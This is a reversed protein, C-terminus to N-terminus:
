KSFRYGQLRLRAKAEASPIGERAAIDRLRWAREVADRNQAFRVRSASQWIYNALFDNTTSKQM